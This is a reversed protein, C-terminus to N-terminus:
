QYSVVKSFLFTSQVLGYDIGTATFSQANTTNAVSLTSTSIGNVLVSQPLAMTVSTPVTFSGASSPATCTFYGYVAQGGGFGFSLGSITVFSSPDAGTWNVTVGSSRTVTAVVQLDSWTLPAPVALQASLAGVDTGGGGNGINYTGATVFGTPFIGSYLGNTYTMSQMSGSGIVNITPGANLATSAIGRPMSFTNSAGGFVTCSGVSVTQALASFDFIPSVAVKYFSAVGVDSVTTADPLVQGGEGIGSPGTTATRTLAITGGSYTGKNVIGQLQSATPGMSPDSCTRGSAAVPLTGFNSVFGGTQVAISVACGSVGAPVVVNIQDLGPYQSRGHYKM